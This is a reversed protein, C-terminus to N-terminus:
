RARTRAPTELPVARGAVGSWWRLTPAGAAKMRGNLPSTSRAERNYLMSLGAQAIDPRGDGNVDGVALGHLNASGDTGVYLQEQQLSGNSGQLYTGVTGWGDHAVVVDLRGDGNLDAIEMAGPYDGSALTVMTALSGDARQHFVSLAAPAGGGWSVALDKRGDGNLDGIAVGRAAWATDVGVYVPAAYRGDAQQYLVGISRAPSGALSTVVLDPRGDGNLDGVELDGGGINDVAYVSPLSIRGGVQYWVSVQGTDTGTGVLDALGDGDVDAARIRNSETSPLWNGSALTGDAQQIFIEVGCGSEGIAVDKRGDGDLDAVALSSAKCAYHSANAYRVPDALTGDPRQLYVVLKFDNAPDFSFYTSMVVDDLGDGNVDGIAVAEPASQPGVLAPYSFAGPDTRFTWPQNMLVPNGRLDTLGGGFQVHYRTARNLPAQPRITITLPNALRVTAAVENGSGDLLRVNGQVSRSDLAESFQARLVVDLAVNEADRAPSFSVVTPAEAEITFGWNRPRLPNGALDRLGEQVRVTYRGSPWADYPQFGLRTGTPEMFFYGPVAAAGRADVVNVVGDVFTDADIPESFDMTVVTFAGHLSGPAPDTATIRPPQHDSRRGSVRYALLNQSTNQVADGERYVGRSRVLGVGPAYWDDLTVSLTSPAGGASGVVTQVIQTRLHATRPFLGAEVRTIDFGVMTVVARVTLADTRGDGDVDVGSDLTRDVQVFRDGPVLPFHMIDLPGIAQLVPGADPGPVQRLARGEVAFRVQEFAGYGPVNHSVVTTDVGNVRERGTVSFKLLSDNATRYVWHDGVNLPFYESGAGHRLTEADIGAQANPGVQGELGAQGVEEVPAAADGGGGCASLLAAVAVLSSGLCRRVRWTGKLCRIMM